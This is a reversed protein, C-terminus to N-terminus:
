YVIEFSSFEEMEKEEWTVKEVSAHPPGEHCWEVFAMLQEEEGIAGIRVSGDAENRVWGKINWRQAAERTSKRFWVGQVLGTVHLELHKM